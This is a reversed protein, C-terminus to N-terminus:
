GESEKIWVLLGGTDLLDELSDLELYECLREMVRFDARQLTNNVMRNITVLGSGTDEAVKIQILAQKKMLKSLHFQTEGPQVAKAQRWLYDRLKRLVSLDGQTTKNNLLRLFPQWDVEANRAHGRYSDKAEEPLNDLIERLVCTIM